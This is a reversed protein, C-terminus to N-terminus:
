QLAGLNIKQGTVLFVAAKSFSAVNLFPSQCRHMRSTLEM